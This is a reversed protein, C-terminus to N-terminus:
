ILGTAPAYSLSEFPNQGSLDIVQIVQRLVPDIVVVRGNM